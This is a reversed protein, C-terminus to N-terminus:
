IEKINDNFRRKFKILIKILFCKYANTFFPLYWIKVKMQLLKTDDTRDDEDTVTKEEGDNVEDSNIKNEYAGNTFVLIFEIKHM